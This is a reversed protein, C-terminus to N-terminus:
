RSRRLWRQAILAAALSDIQEKGIRGRLGVSRESKLMESAELSTYREDITEVPLGFRGLETVFQGIHRTMESPSGDEHAPLGVILRAPHWERIITAIAQWDPGADGNRIAAIPNASRTIDQGVAVGIRRLGFDFAVVTEPLKTDPTGPM